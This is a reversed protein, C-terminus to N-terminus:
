QQKKAELLEPSPQAPHVIHRGIAKLVEDILIVPLAYLLVLAWESLSLPVISFIDALFPVYLIVFHLGFSVGCAVLLWPNKWPPM